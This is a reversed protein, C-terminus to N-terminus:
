KCVEKLAAELADIDEDSVVETVAVVLGNALAERDPYLRGLSVGGLVGKEVMAHVAPRAEVPLKVTFETFFADNVLEVGPIAALRGAVEVGRAHNIEALTRLGKEGLLTLHISFALACLGSNTCINSTAKERRIHQERTSLTLVFGRKGEADVTEGALRGPM